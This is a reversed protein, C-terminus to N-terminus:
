KTEARPLASIDNEAIQESRFEDPGALTALLHCLHYANDTMKSLLAKQTAHLNHFHDEALIEAGSLIVQLANRAECCLAENWASALAADHSEGPHRRMFRQATLTRFQEMRPVFPADVPAVTQPVPAATLNAALEPASSPTSM